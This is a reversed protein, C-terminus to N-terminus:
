LVFSFSKFCMCNFMDKLCGTNLSWGQLGEFTCKEYYDVKTLLGGTKFCGLQETGQATGQPLNSRTTTITM